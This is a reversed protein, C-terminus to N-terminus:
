KVLESIYDIIPQLKGAYYLGALTGGLLTATSAAGIIIKKTGSSSGNEKKLKGSFQTKSFITNRIEKNTYQPHKGQKVLELDELIKDYSDYRNNPDHQIMKAIIMEVGEIKADKKKLITPLLEDRNLSFNVKQYTNMSKQYLSIINTLLDYFTMGASYQDCLWNLSETKNCSLQEPSSFYYTGLSVGTGTNKTDKKEESLLLGLDCIKVLGPYIKSNKKFPTKFMINAPKIDRHTWGRKKLATLGYLIQKFIEINDEISRNSLAEYSLKQGRMLEMLCYDRYGIHDNVKIKGICFHYAINDDCLGVIEEIRSMRDVSDFSNMNIRSVLRNNKDLINNTKLYNNLKEELDIVELKQVDNKMKKVIKDWSYKIVSKDDKKSDLGNMYLQDIYYHVMMPVYLERLGEGKNKKLANWDLNVEFVLGEGGTGKFTNNLDEDAIVAKGITESDLHSKKSNESGTYLIDFHGKKTISEYFRILQENIRESM